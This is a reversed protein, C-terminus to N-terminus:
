VRTTLETALYVGDLFCLRNTTGGSKLMNVGFCLGNFTTIGTSVSGVSVGDIYFTALTATKNVVIEFEHYDGVSPDATITVGTDAAVTTGGNARCFEWRGGNVSDTGRFFLGNNPNASGIDIFGLYHTFTETGTSLLPMTLRIGGRLENDGFRTAGGFTDPRGIGAYARGTTATGTQLQLVGIAKQTSNLGTSTNAADGQAVSAGAGVPRQDLPFGTAGFHEVFIIDYNLSSPFSPMQAWYSVGVSPNNVKADLAAQLDLQASLTGTITGWTGGGGSGGQLVYMAGDWLWIEAATTDIYVIGLEGTVPFDAFNAYKKVYKEIPIKIYEM